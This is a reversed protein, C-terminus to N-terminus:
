SATSYMGTISRPSTVTSGALMGCTRSANSDYKSHPSDGTPLLAGPVSRGCACSLDGRGRRPRDGVTAWRSRGLQWTSPRSVRAAAGSAGPRWIGWPSRRSCRGSRWGTLRSQLTAGWAPRGRHRGGSGRPTHRPLPPGAPAPSTPARRPPLTRGRSGRGNGGARQGAPAVAGLRGARAPSTGERRPGRTV